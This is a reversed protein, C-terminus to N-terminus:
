VATTDPFAAIAADCAAQAEAGGLDALTQPLGSTLSQAAGEVAANALHLPYDRADSASVWRGM